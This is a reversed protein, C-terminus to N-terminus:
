KASGLDPTLTPPPLTPVEDVIAPNFRPLLGQSGQELQRNQERNVIDRISGAAATAIMVATQGWRGNFTGAPVTNKQTARGIEAGEEDSVIWDIKVQQEDSVHSDIRVEAKLRFAAESQTEVIEFGIDGLAYNIARALSFNGDGPADMVPRIWIGSKKEAIQEARDLPGVLHASIEAATGEGIERIIQSSGFDWDLRTATFEYQFTLVLEGSRTTLAWLIHSPPENEAREAPSEVWGDLVHTSSGKDGSYAILERRSLEDAVSRALLKAM